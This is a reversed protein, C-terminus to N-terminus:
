SQQEAWYEVFERFTIEEIDEALDDDLEFGLEEEIAIVFQAADSELWSFVESFTTGPRLQLAQEGVWSALCHALRAAIEEEQPRPFFIRIFNMDASRTQGKM